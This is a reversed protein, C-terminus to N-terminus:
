GLALAAVGVVIAGAAILRRPADGEGLLRAGLVAGILISVERAPAVYSVPTFTMATLVLLYALPNLVAVALVPRRRYRWLRGVEARGAWAVPGLLLLRAVGGGWEFVLPPILLTSVAQKDWLTYAAILVGTLLGYVLPGGRHVPRMAGPGGAIGFVAGIILAGGALGLPTPREGLLLIAGITALLPGTGRALPYVVSLDGGRYGRQLAVYYALHLLGSGIIFAFEVAGLRPRLLLYAAAAFPLYILTAVAGFLWIFEVGGGSRKVILNWSAHAGAAALILVLALPSM